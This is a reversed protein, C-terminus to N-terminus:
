SQVLRSIKKPPDHEEPLGDLEGPIATPEGIFDRVYLKKVLVFLAVTIPAAFILAVGGFLFSITVIGLLIVAPPIFIMRRQIIPVLLNGETQHIITYAVITWLVADFNKTIAVLIAPIAALIPGLYPIFETIGAILGLALPSPLGIAWAACTSMLGIILMQILQGLLWLRLARGVDEITEAADTRLRRPFLQLLGKRYLTPQLALYIGTVFTVVLAEVLTISVNFIRTVVGTVSLDAGFVHSLILKGFDSSQLTTVLSQQGAEARHLVDQLEASIRSGFLFAAGGVFGVIMLGSLALAAWQPLKLIRLFPEAGLRILAAVLIAGVVILLVDFLLWALALILALTVIFSIRDRFEAASM